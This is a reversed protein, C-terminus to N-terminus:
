REWRRLEEAREPEGEPYRSLTVTKYYLATAYGEACKDLTLAFVVKNWAFFWPWVWWRIRKYEFVAREGPATCEVRYTYNTM